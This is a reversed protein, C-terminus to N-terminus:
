GRHLAWAWSAPVKDGERIQAEFGVACRRALDGDPPDVEWWWGADDLMESRLALGIPRGQADFAGHIEIRDSWTMAGSGSMAPFPGFRRSEIWPRRLEADERGVVLDGTRLIELHDAIDIGADEIVTRHWAGLVTLRAADPRPHDTEAPENM